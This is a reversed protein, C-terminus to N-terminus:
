GHRCSNGYQYIHTSHSVEIMSPWLVRDVDRGGKKRGEKGEEKKGGDCNERMWRGFGKIRNGDSPNILNIGKM